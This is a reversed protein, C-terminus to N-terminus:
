MVAAEKRIREFTDKMGDNQAIYEQIRVLLLSNFYVEVCVGVYVCV